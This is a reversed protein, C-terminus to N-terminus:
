PSTELENGSIQLRARLAGVIGPLEVVAENQARRAQIRRLRM